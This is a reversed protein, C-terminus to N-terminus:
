QFVLGSKGKLVFGPDYTSPPGAPYQKARTARLRLDDYPLTKSRSKVVM